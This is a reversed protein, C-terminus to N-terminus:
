QQLTFLLKLSTLISDGEGDLESFSWEKFHRHQENIQGMDRKVFVLKSGRPLEVRFPGLKVVRM